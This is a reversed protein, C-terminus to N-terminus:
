STVPATPIITTPETPGTTPAPTPSPTPSDSKKASPESSTPASPGPTPSDSEKPSPESSTPASPEPSETPSASPEDTPEPSETETPFESPYESPYESDECPPVVGASSYSYETTGSACGLPCYQEIAIAFAAVVEPCSSISEVVAANFKSLVDAATPRPCDCTTELRRAWSVPIDGSFLDIGCVEDENLFPSANCSTTAKILFSSSATDQAVFESTEADCFAGEQVCPSDADLYAALFATAISAQTDVDTLDLCTSNLADGYQMVVYEADTYPMPLDSECAEVPDTPLANKYFYQPFRRVQAPVALEREEQRLGNEAAQGM